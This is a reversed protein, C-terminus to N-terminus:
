VGPIIEVTLTDSYTGAVLPFVSGTTSATVILANTAAGASPVSNVSVPAAVGTASLVPAVVLLGWSANATYPIFNAFGGPAPPLTSWLVGGLTVAGKASTVKLHAVGNCYAGAINVIGTPGGAPIVGAANQVLGLTPSAGANPVVCLPAAVSALGVDIAFASGSTAMLAAFATSALLKKM